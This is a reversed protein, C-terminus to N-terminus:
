PAAVADADRCGAGRCDRLGAAIRKLRTVLDPNQAAINRLQFPDTQNDILFDDGGGSTIRVYTYRETRVGYGSWEGWRRYPYATRWPVSAGRLLPMLSRGEMHSPIPVGAADLITPAIDITGVLKDSRAGAVVGPGRVLLPVTVDTEIPLTKPPSIPRIAHDLFHYGNDSSVIILTNNLHGTSALWDIMESVQDDVVLVERMSGRWRQDSSAIQLQTAPERRMVLPYSLGPVNFAPDRPFVPVPRTAYSPPLEYPTHADHTSIQVAWPRAGAAQIAERAYAFFAQTSGTTYTQPRGNDHVTGGTGANGGPSGIFRSWGPPRFTATNEFRAWGVTYHGIFTTTYGAAELSVAYSQELYRRRGPYGSDPATWQGKVGHSSAYRGIDVTTRSPTCLPYDVRSRDFRMGHRAIGLRLAPAYDLHRMAVDDTLIFLINPQDSAAACPALAGAAALTSSLLWRRCADRRRRLMASFAVACRVKAAHAGLVAVRHWVRSSGQMRNWVRPAPTTRPRAPAGSAAGHEGRTQLLLQDAGAWAVHPMTPNASMSMTGNTNM